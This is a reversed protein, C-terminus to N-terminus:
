HKALVTRTKCTNIGFVTWAPCYAFLGTTLAIAGVAYGAIALGGTLVQLLSLAFLGLGVIIRVAREIGGVNHSM